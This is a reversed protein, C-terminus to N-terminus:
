NRLKKLQKKTGDRIPKEPYKHHFNTDQVLQQLYNIIETKIENHAEINKLLQNPNEIHFELKNDIEALNEDILKKQWEPANSYFTKKAQNKDSEEKEEAEKKEREKKEKEIKAKEEAEKQEKEAQEKEIKTKEESTLEFYGFGTATKAGLGFHTLQNELAQRLLDLDKQQDNHKCASTPAIAFQFKTGKAIALFQIPNPEHWDGPIKDAEKSLDDDKVDKIDGGQAYWSGYHPTMIEKCLEITGSPLADFFQYNGIAPANTDDSGFIRQIIAEREPIDLWNDFYDRLAGKIASGAIYPLGWTPHFLLGNELPHDQGMGTVLSTTAEYKITIGGLHECLAKIQASNKKLNQNISHTKIFKDIFQHKNDTTKKFNEIYQNFYKEFYLGLNYTNGCAVTGINSHLPRPPM